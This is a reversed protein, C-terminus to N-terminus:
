ARAVARLFYERSSVLSSRLADEGQALLLPAWTDLGAPDARRDLFVGYARDVRRHGSELSRWVGDAVYQRGVTGLRQSWSTVDQSAPERELLDRYLAVVYGEPSSGSRLYYEESAIFRGRLDETRVAGAMVGRTWDQLGGADPQRRLIEAYIARVERSAYEESRSLSQALDAASRGSALMASWTALGSPDAERDLMDRYLSRVMPEAYTVAAATSRIKGMASYGGNGPCVTKNTDRHGFVVPLPVDSGAPFRSNDGGFTRYVMSGAPNVGYGALRWGIVRAVADQTAASPTVSSYDGIMAVGVTGTNFGGAHVGIVPQDMSGQRGEYTNGWKDVLFNYGIDCWGLSQTHYRYFGRIAAKADEVSAYNNSSATHHVVAGVLQKATDARCPNTAPAGWEARSIIRPKPAATMIAAQEVVAAQAVAGGVPEAVEGPDVLALSLGEPAGAATTAFSLQVADSEGVWVPSMGRRAGSAADATGADPSEDAIEFPTWETWEDGARTRVQADIATTGVGSPWTLGVMAFGDREVVPTQVRDAALIQDAVVRSPVAAADAGGDPLLRSASTGLEAVPPVVVPIEEVGGSDSSAPPPAVQTGSAASAPIGGTLTAVLAVALALVAAPRTPKLSM